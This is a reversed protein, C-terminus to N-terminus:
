VRYPPHGHPLRSQNDRDKAYAHPPTNSRVRVDQSAEALVYVTVNLGSLPESPQVMATVSSDRSGSGSVGCLLPYLKKPHYIAPVLVFYSKLVGTTDSRISSARHDLFVM